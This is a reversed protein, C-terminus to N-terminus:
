GLSLVQRVAAADLQSFPVVPAPEGDAPRLALGWTGLGYWSGNKYGTDPQTGQLVFGMARHLGESAPNPITVLAYTNHVGQLELLALLAGYLRRGRGAGSADHALYITTEVDWAFAEREKWRHACAFGLLTGARNKLLLFPYDAASETVWRTYEAEGPLSAAFTAASHEVYWGYLQRIASFTIDAVVLDPFKRVPGVIREVRFLEFLGGAAHHTDGVKPASGRDFPDVARAHDFGGIPVGADDQDPVCRLLGQGAFSEITLLPSRALLTIQEEEAVGSGSTNGVHAHIEVVTPEDVRGALDADVAEVGIGFIEDSVRAERDAADFVSDSGRANGTNRFM